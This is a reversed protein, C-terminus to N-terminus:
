YTIKLLSLLTKDLDAVTENQLQRQTGTEEVIVRSSQELRLLARSEDDSHPLALIKTDEFRGVQGYLQV